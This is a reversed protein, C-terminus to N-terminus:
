GRRPRDRAAERQLALRRLQLAYLKDRATDRAERARRVDAAADAYSAM